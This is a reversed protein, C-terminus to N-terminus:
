EKLAGIAPSDIAKRLARRIFFEATGRDAPTRDEGLADLAKQCAEILSPVASIARAFAAAAEGGVSEPDTTAVIAWPYPPCIGSKKNQHEMNPAVVRFVNAGPVEWPGKINMIGEPELDPDCGKEFPISTRRGRLWQLLGELHIANRYGRVSLRNDSSMWLVPM